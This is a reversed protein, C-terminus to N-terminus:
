EYVTIIEKSVVSNNLKKIANLCNTKLLHYEKKDNFLSLVKEEFDKSNREEFVKGCKYNSILESQATSNSCIVPVGFSIYQFLKNAYTTDHHMNRHLPSIGLHSIMLYKYLENEKKWGMFDVFNSLKLKKVKSRLKKDFSSQGIIVLKINLIKDKLLPLSDIVTELGRRKSTNGIYLLVFKKSYDTSIKKDINKNLYFSKKVTNPYVVIKKANIMCRKLLEKKAEKTVTIVKHAKKVFKEEAIKWRKPNILLKGFFSNVHKYYKMIEPRNEHLDLTFKLALEDCVRIAAGAIQIDHIHLIEVGSNEIFKLIKKSLFISYLSLDNALASLKYTLKNCYYRHVNIKKITENNVFSKKYSLCFLHVEHNYKTLEDCQNTIRADDPYEADLIMGIKM